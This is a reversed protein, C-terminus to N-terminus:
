PATPAGSQRAIVADLAGLRQALDAQWPAAKPSRAALEGWIRRAEALHGSQALALGLFFPPGPNEPAVDAARQFAVLAAPSLTGGAHGVLANALALWAEGDRPNAEVAGRLIGAADGFQGQRALGDAIILLRQGQVQGGTMAQRAAVMAAGDQGPAEAARTPSGPEGPSGQLAYGAIGAFLAAGIAEWGGRPAKLVFAALAFAALALGLILGWIM